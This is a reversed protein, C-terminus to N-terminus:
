NEPYKLVISTPGYKFGNKEMFEDWPIGKAELYEGVSRRYRGVNCDHCCCLTNWIDHPQSNDIRDLGLLHWDTEGCYVCKSDESFCKKMIDEQTLYPRRWGKRTDMQVYSNMLNTARGEKTEHYDKMRKSQEEKHKRQYLKYRENWEKRHEQRYKRMYETSYGPHKERFRRSYERQRERREEDTM